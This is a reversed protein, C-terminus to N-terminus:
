FLTHMAEAAEMVTKKLNQGAISAASRGAPDSGTLTV